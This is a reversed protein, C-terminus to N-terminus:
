WDLLSLTWLTRRERLYLKPFASVSDGSASQETLSVSILAAGNVFWDNKWIISIDRIQCRYLREHLISWIAYDVPNLNLSNPPWNQPGIFDPTEASLLGVTKRAHNNPSNDQQFGFFPGFISRIVPLLHQRLIAHEPLVFWKDEFWSWYFDSRHTWSIFHWRVGNNM